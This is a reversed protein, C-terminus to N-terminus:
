KEEMIINVSKKFLRYFIVIYVHLPVAMILLGARHVPDHEFTIVGLIFAVFVGAFLVKNELHYKYWIRIWNIRKRELWNLEDWRDICDSLVDKM